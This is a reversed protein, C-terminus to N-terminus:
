AEKSSRRAGLVMRLGSQEVQPAPQARVGNLLVELHAELARDFDVQFPIRRSVEAPNSLMLLMGVLGSWLNFLSLSTDIDARVSGDLKGLELAEYGFQFAQAISMRYRTFAPSDEDLPTEASLWSMAVRFRDPYEIAYAAYCRLAAEFWTYGSHGAMQLRVADEREILEDLARQATSLYLDEKDEFYLYLSGKSLDAAKAIQEMTAHAVPTHVFVREAADMIHLRREVREQHRRSAVDM